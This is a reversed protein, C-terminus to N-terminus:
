KAYSMIKSTISEIKNESIEEGKDKYYEKVMSKVKSYIGKKAATYNYNHEVYADIIYKAAQGAKEYDDNMFFYKVSSYGYAKGGSRAAYAIGAHAVGFDRGAASASEYEKVVEKQENLCLIAKTNKGM